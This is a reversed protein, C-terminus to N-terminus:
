ISFSTYLLCLLTVTDGDHYMGAQERIDELIDGIKRAGIKDYVPLYESMPHGSLYMGTVEKEMILKESQSIDPMPEPVFEEVSSGDTQIVDFFGIQGEVNKRKDAELTDLVIAVSALMQRRNCGLDDLAGCKILSELARRNLDQGYM